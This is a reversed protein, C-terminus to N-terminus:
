NIIKWVNGTKELDYLRVRQEEGARNTRITYAKVRNESIFEIDDVSDDVRTNARSPVVVHRFYDEANRLVIRQNKIIPLESIARLNEPSSIEDFYEQSLSNKWAVYDRRRIIQNVQGIFKQVDEKTTDYHERSITGPDFSAAAQNATQPRTQAPQTETKQDTVCSVALVLALSFAWYPKKIGM